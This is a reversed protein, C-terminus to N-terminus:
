RYRQLARELDRRNVVELMELRSRGEPIKFLLRWSQGLRATRIEPASKMQKVGTWAGPAAGGLEGATVLAKRVVHEPADRLSREFRDSWEPLRVSTPVAEAPVEAEVSETAGPDAAGKAEEEMRALKRSSASLRQRLKAKQHASERLLVKLEKARAVLEEHRKPDITDPPDAPAPEVLTPKVEHRISALAQDMQRKIERTKGAEEALTARLNEIEDLLGQNVAAVSQEILSEDRIELLREWVEWSPDGPPLLLRDRAVEITELLTWADLSRDPDLAGRAVLIGLAPLRGLLIYSLDVLGSSEPEELGQRLLSELKQLLPARDSQIELDFLDAEEILEEPLRDLQRRAVDTRGARLAERFLELRHEDPWPVADERACLEDAAAEAEEWFAFLTLARLLPVLHQDALEAPVLRRLEMSRLDDFQDRTMSRSYPSVRKIPRIEAANGAGGPRGCCKKFKKGSGCPCPENRGVKATERRITYGGEFEEPPREPLVERVRRTLYDAVGQLMHEGRPGRAIDVWVRAAEEVDEDEVALAAHGLAIGAGLELQRCALLRIRVKLARPPPEDGLMQTALLLLPAERDWSLRETECEKLIAAVRDGSSQAILLLAHDVGEVFPLLPATLQADPAEGRILGSMLIRAAADEERLQLALEAAPVIEAVPLKAAIADIAPMTMPLESAYAVFEALDM